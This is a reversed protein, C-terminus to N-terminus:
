SVGTAACGLHILAMSESLSIVEHAWNGGEGKGNEDTARKRCHGAVDFCAGYPILGIRLCFARDDRCAPASSPCAMPPRGNLAFHRDALDDVDRFLRHLCARDPVLRVCLIFAGQHSCAM